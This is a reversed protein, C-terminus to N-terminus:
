QISEPLPLEPHKSKYHRKVYRKQRFKLNCLDCAFPKVDSHTLKHKKLEHKIRFKRDCLDCAHPRHGSHVTAHLLMAPQTRFSLDCESCQFPFVLSHGRKHVFLSAKQKFAKGCDDCVYPRENTHLRRHEMVNRRNGFKRDCLDCAFERSNEHVEKIHRALGSAIRFRKGCHNCIFPKEGSHILLHWSFSNASGLQKRCEPCQYYVKDDIVVKSNEIIKKNQVNHAEFMHNNFNKRKSCIYDCKKCSYVGNEKKVQFVEYKINETEYQEPHTPAGSSTSCQSTSTM